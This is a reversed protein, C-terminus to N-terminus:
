NINSSLENAKKIFYESSLNEPRNKHRYYLFALFLLILIAMIILFGYFMTQIFEAGKVANSKSDKTIGSERKIGEIIDNVNNKNINKNKDNDNLEELDDNDNIGEESDPLPEYIKPKMPENEKNIYKVDEKSYFGVEQNQYDYVMHFLRVIPRGLSWTEFNHKHYFIFEYLENNKKYSFLKSPSLSMVWDGYVLNIKPADDLIKKCGFRDYGLTSIKQCINDNIYKQFYNKEFYEFVEKPVLAVPRFSFFSARTNEYKQVKNEDYEDGFYIGHIECEWKRNKIRKGDVIKDLVPCRGYNKYDNVINKPIEGFSIVGQEGKEFSQTFVRHFILGNNYLQNIFSYKEEKKTGRYGLGIMGEDGKFSDSEIASLFYGKMLFQDKIYIHDIISYAKIYQEEDYNYENLIRRVQSTKSKNPNYKKNYEVSKDSNKEDQVWIYFSQGHIAFLRCFKPSSLCLELCMFDETNPVVPFSLTQSQSFSLFTNPTQSSYKSQSKIKFPFKLVQISFSILNFFLILSSFNKFFLKMKNNINIFKILNM